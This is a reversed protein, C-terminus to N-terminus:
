YEYDFNSIHFGNFCYSQSNPDISYHILKRHECKLIILFLARCGILGLSVLELTEPVADVGRNLVGIVVINENRNFM